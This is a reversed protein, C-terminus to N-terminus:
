TFLFFSFHDSRIFRLGAPFPVIHSSFQFYAVSEKLIYKSYILNRFNQAQLVVLAIPIRIPIRIPM